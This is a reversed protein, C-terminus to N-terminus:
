GAGRVDAVITWTPCTAAGYATTAKGMSVDVVRGLAPPWTLRGFSAEHLLRSVNGGYYGLNAQMHARM